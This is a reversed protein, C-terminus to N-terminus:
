YNQKEERWGWRGPIKRGVGVMPSAAWHWPAQRLVMVKGRSDVASRDGVVSCGADGGRAGVAGGGRGGDFRPSWWVSNWCRRGSSQGQRRSSPRRRGGCPTWQRAVWLTMAMWM